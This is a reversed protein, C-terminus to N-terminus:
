QIAPLKKKFGEPKETSVTVYIRKAEETAPLYLSGKIDADLVKLLEETVSFRKLGSRTSKDFDMATVQDKAM